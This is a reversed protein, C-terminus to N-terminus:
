IYLGSFYPEAASKIIFPIEDHIIGHFCSFILIYSFQVGVLARNLELIDRLLQLVQFLPYQPDPTPVFVTSFEGLHRFSKVLVAAFDLSESVQHM